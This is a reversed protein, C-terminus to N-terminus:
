AIERGNRSSKRALIQLEASAVSPVVLTFEAAPISKAIVSMSDARCKGVSCSDAM